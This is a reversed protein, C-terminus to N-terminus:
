VRRCARFGRFLCFLVFAHFAVGLWSQTLLFILGDLAFLVMGVIFAWKHAKNAFIGFLVFVGAALLDLLLAVIKGGGDVTSGFEDIVQTIGLGVIFRIPMGIFATITNVLSLVAVVYFWSAGSKVHAAAGPAKRVVTGQATNAVPVSADIDFLPQLETFDAAAAWGEMDNRRVGAQPQLRGERVWGSLQKLSAPGYEKGDAGQVMYTLEM